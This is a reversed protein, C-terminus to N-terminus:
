AAAGELDMQLWLRCMGNAEDDSMTDGAIGVEADGERDSQAIDRTASHRPEIRSLLAMHLDFPDVGDPAIFELYGPACLKIWNIAVLDGREAEQLASAIMGAVFRQEPTIGNMFQIRELASM